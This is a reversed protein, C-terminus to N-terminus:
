GGNKKKELQLRAALDMTTDQQKVPLLRLSNSLLRLEGIFRLSERNTEMGAVRLSLKCWAVLLPYMTESLHVNARLTDDFLKREGDTLDDLMPNDNM